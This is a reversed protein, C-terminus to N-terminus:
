ENQKEELRKLREELERMHEQSKELQREKEQSEKWSGYALGLILVAVPILPILMYYSLYDVM